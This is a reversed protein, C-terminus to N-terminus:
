HLLFSLFLPWFNGNDGIYTNGKRQQNFIDGNYSAFFCRGMNEVLIDIRLDYNQGGSVELPSSQNLMIRTVKYTFIAVVM